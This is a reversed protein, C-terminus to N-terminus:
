HFIHLVEARFLWLVCHLSPAKILHLLDQGRNSPRPIFFTDTRGLTIQGDSRLWNERKGEKRQLRCTAESTHTATCPGLAAQQHRMHRGGAPWGGDAVSVVCRPELRVPTTPRSDQLWCQQAAVPGLVLTTHLQGSGLRYGPLLLLQDGRFGCLWRRDAAGHGPFTQQRPAHQRGKGRPVAARLGPWSVCLPVRAPPAPKPVALPHYPVTVGPRSVRSASSHHSLLCSAGRMVEHPRCPPQPVSRQSETVMQPPPPLRERVPVSPLRDCLRQQPKRM